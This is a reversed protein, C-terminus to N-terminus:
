IYEINLQKISSHRVKRTNTRKLEDRQLPTYRSLTVHCRYGARSVNWPTAKEVRRRIPHCYAAKARTRSRIGAADPQAGVGDAPEDTM